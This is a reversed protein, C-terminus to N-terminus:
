KLRCELIGGSFEPQLEVVLRIQKTTVPAFSVQNFRDPEVGYDGEAEVPRWSDGELWEVRWSKPVRCQGRGTDDFWYVEVQSVTKPEELTCAVWESTGRHDWWTLRPISGDGSSRPLMGDDIAMVTDSQWCHSATWPTSTRPEIWEHADPGSGIVPFASIRLRACGMPILTVTETPEDSKVPSENIPGVLGLHDLKWAPIKKASARLEIPAADWNFPQGDEPLAKQVVEFSSAPDEENLVLGYNWPTTPHIELAPWKDTGGARVCKEGIKLSYALPGRHVSVSNQNKVWRTLTIEMPLELSVTDGESWKREVVLCSGPGAKVAIQQGNIALSPGGCWGPVRLYLPFSVPKPTSVALEVTEGFPYQTTETITVESGDGVKATVKSPAYLAAALGNGPTALWLHQAYRPWGHAINHQCCRHRHPDFLFMPGGNQVGPSKSKQDCLVLNPATLYHLARLDPTMCAPFSDLAATECRDAWKGEGTITLLMECSLMMEAISCSEAAQRPGSYGPRCNEDAGFMGGPVQGYLGMVEQYNREAGALHEPQQSQMWYVTPARFCQCINVGHWSAIEQHWPAMNRHIKTALDLLWEDGTRNYLWYVSAMNDSARQQQWFPPLFDDDAVGLEWRFYNTMLRVVREDGSHEYYSQLVNLMIMNPWLDPKGEATSRHRGGANARPGFWGDERQSALAADIWKQAEQIIRRDGLVYGLDSFGKLWYPSEEWFSHGEGAPSLWANDEERLFASIEPLHGTFGEAELELQRRLWGEPKITGVPLKIFPSPVLPARNGAYHDNGASTDPRPVAGVREDAGRALSAMWAVLLLGALLKSEMM